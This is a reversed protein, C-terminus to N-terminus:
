GIAQVADGLIQRTQETSKRVSGEDHRVSISNCVPSLAEILTDEAATIAKRKADNGRHSHDPSVRAYLFTFRNLVSDPTVNDSGFDDWHRAAFRLRRLPALCGAGQHITPQRANVLGAVMPHDGGFEAELANTTRKAVNVRHGRGSISAVHTWWRSQAVNGNGFGTQNKVGLFSGLYVLRDDFCLAYLGAGSVRDVMGSAKTAESKEIKWNLFEVGARGKELVTADLVDAASFVSVAM